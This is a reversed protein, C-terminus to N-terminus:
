QFELSNGGADQRTVDHDLPRGDCQKSASGDVRTSEQNQDSAADGARFLGERDSDLQALGLAGQPIAYEEPVNM